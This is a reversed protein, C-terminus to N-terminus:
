VWYEIEIKGNAGYGGASTGSGGPVGGAGIGYTISAGPTTTVTTTIEAGDSPM